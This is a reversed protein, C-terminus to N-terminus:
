IRPPGARLSERGGVWWTRPCPPHKGWCHLHHDEHRRWGRLDGTRGSLLAWDWTQHSSGFISSKYLKWDPFWFCHSMSDWSWAVAQFGHSEEIRNKSLRQHYSLLLHKIVSNYCARCPIAPKPPSVALHPSNPEYANPCLLSALTPWSNQHIQQIGPCRTRSQNRQGPIRALSEAFCHSVILWLLEFLKVWHQSSVSEQFQAAPREESRLSYKATIWLVVWDRTERMKRFFAKHERLKRSM